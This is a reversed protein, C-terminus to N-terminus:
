DAQALFALNDDLLAERPLLEYGMRYVHRGTQNAHLSTGTGVEQCTNEPCLPVFHLEHRGLVNPGEDFRVLVVVDVRFSNGLSHLPGRHAKNRDLAFCLEIKLSQVTHAIAPHPSPGGYDVLDTPEQQFVTNGNGHAWSMELSLNRGNEFVCVIQQRRTHSREQDLKSVLPLLQLRLDLFDVPLKSLRSLFFLVASTQEGDRPDPGECRSREGCGDSVTRSESFATIQRGPETQNWALM